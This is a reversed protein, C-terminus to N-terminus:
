TFNRGNLPLDSVQRQTITQSIASNDTDLAVASAKVEVAQTVKGLEMRFDVRITQAINLTIDVHKALRFGTAEATVTYTGVPLLAFTYNGSTNSKTKRTSGTLQDTITIQASPVIAGSADVVTGTIEGTATQARLTGALGLVAFLITSLLAIQRVRKM